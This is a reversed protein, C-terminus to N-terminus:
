SNTPNPFDRGRIFSLPKKSQTHSDLYHLHDWATSFTIDMHDPFINSTTLVSTSMRTDGSNTASTCHHIPRTSKIPEERDQVDLCMSVTCHLDSVRLLYKIFFPQNYVLLGLNFIKLERLQFQVLRGLFVQWLRLITTAESPSPPPIRGLNSHLSM